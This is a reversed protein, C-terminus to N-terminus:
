CLFLNVFNNNNNVESYIVMLDNGFYWRFTFAVYMNQMCKGTSKWNYLSNHVTISCVLLSNSFMGVFQQFVLSVVAVCIVFNNEVEKM